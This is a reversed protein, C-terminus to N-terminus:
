LVHIQSQPPWVRVFAKGGWAWVSKYRRGADTKILSVKFVVQSATASPDYNVANLLLSMRKEHSLIDCVGEIAHSSGSHIATVFSGKEEDYWRNLLVHVTIEPASDWDDTFTPRMKDDGSIGEPVLVYPFVPGTVNHENIGSGIVIGNTFDEASVRVGKVRTHLSNFMEMLSFAAGVEGFALYQRTAAYKHELLLRSLLPSKAIADPTNVSSVRIFLEDDISFFLRAYIGIVVPRADSVGTGGDVPLHCGWFLRLPATSDERVGVKLAYRNLEIDFTFVHGAARLHRATRLKARARSVETKLWDANDKSGMEKCLQALSFPELQPLRRKIYEKWRRLLIEVIEKQKEYRTLTKLLHREIEGAHQRLIEREVTENM